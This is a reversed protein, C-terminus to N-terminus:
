KLTFYKAGFCVCRLENKTSTYEQRGGDKKNLIMQKKDLESM